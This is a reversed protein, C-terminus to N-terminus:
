RNRSRVTSWGSWTHHVPMVLWGGQKDIVGAQEGIKVSAMGKDFKDAADFLPKIALSGDMNLYGYRM